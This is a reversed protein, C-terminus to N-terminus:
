VNVHHFNKAGRLQSFGRPAKEFRAVSMAVAAGQGTAEVEACYADFAAEAESTKSIEVTRSPFPGEATIVVQVADNERMAPYTKLIIKTM